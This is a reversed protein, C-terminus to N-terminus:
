YWLKRFIDGSEGSYYIQVGWSYGRRKHLHSSRPLSYQKLVIVLSQIVWITRPRWAPTCATSGRWSNRRFTTTKAGPCCLPAFKGSASWLKTSSSVPSVAPVNTWVKWWGVIPECLKINSHLYDQPGSCWSMVRLPWEATSPLTWVLDLNKMLRFRVHSM